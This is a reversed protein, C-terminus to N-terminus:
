CSLDHETVYYRGHMLSTGVLTYTDSHYLKASTTALQISWELEVLTSMALVIEGDDCFHINEAAGSTGVGQVTLPRNRIESILSGTRNWDIADYLRLLNFCTVGAETDILIFEDRNKNAEPFFYDEKSIMAM